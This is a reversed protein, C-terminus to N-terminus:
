LRKLCTEIDKTKWCLIYKFDHKTIQQMWFKFFADDLRLLQGEYYLRDDKWSEIKASATSRVPFSNFYSYRRLGCVNDVIFFYQTYPSSDCGIFEIKFLPYTEIDARNFTFRYGSEERFERYASLFLQYRTQKKSSMKNLQGHPFDYKDEYDHGQLFRHYDQLDSTSMTPVYEKEFRHRVDKFSCHNPDFGENGKKHLAMLYNQVCYPVKRRITVVRGCKTKVILGYSEAFKNRRGMASSESLSLNQFTKDLTDLVM